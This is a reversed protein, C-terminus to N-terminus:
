KSSDGFSVTCSKYASDIVVTEGVPTAILLIDELPEMLIDAHCAFSSSIFSHTAGPDFLVRATHSFLNLTGTAVDNSALADHETMAFIRGGRSKRGPQFSGAGSVGRGRGATASVGISATRSSAAAASTPATAARPCDRRIHGPQGCEYCLRPNPCDRLHHGFKGCGFYHHIWVTQGEASGGGRGSSPTRTRSVQSVVQSLEGSGRSDLRNASLSTSSSGRYPHYSLRRRSRSSPLSQSASPARSSGGRGSQAGSRRAEM